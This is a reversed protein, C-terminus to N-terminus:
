EGLAELLLRRRDMILGITFELRRETLRCNSDDVLGALGDFATKVEAQDFQLHGLMVQKTYPYEHAMKCMFAYFNMPTQDELSWKMHHLAGRPRNSGTIRTLYRSRYGPDQFKYFREELLEHGMSTGNDFAPSFRMESSGIRFPPPYVVGWNNQHRDTNGTVTDFTLISALERVRQETDLDEYKEIIAVITQFNHQRGTRHDFNPIYPSIVTGGDFYLENDGYFWEILAAHTLEESSGSGTSAVYAPPVEVGMIQGMRYALIEIWFQWPYRHFSKKFLYPHDSRIVPQQPEAPSRYLDKERAGEPYANGYYEDPTWESIDIVENLHKLTKRGDM